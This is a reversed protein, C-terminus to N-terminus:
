ALLNAGIKGPPPQPQTSSAAPAAANTTPAVATESPRAPAQTPAAPHDPPKAQPAAQVTPQIPASTAPRSQPQAQAAPQPAPKPQLQPGTPHRPPRDTSPDFPTIRYGGAVETLYLTDGRGLNLRKLVDKPLHVGLASGLMMIRLQHMHVREKRQSGAEVM